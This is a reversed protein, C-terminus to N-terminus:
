QKSTSLLFISLILLAAGFIGSIALTEGLLVWALFAAVVPDLMGVISATTASVSRLGMQFIWYAFATPGLGLYLVLLWGPLTHVAVIGSILNIPLLLLTGAGFTVATVQLPHYGAAVFRGCIIMGAYTVAAIISYITGLLIDDHSAVPSRLGVLLVSGIVACILAIVNRKTLTEFKLLVSVSTVVVPALCLTLLTAITVGSARIAAFYAAQSIALLSGSLLMILLDRQRINFMSRGVVRWCAVLMVPTAILLRALNLFLSTTSDLAYIAQTTVGITGWLIAAGTVLWFGDPQTSHLKQM